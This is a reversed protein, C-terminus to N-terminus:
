LNKAYYRVAKDFAPFDQEGLTKFGFATHFRHSGPNDPRTNVECALYKHGLNRAFAEIDNYLRQGLGRGQGDADIIIRDIYFFDEIKTRLWDLNKHEDWVTDHAYGILIATAEDIQRAYSAKSLLHELDEQDLPSLWHVFRENLELIKSHHESHIPAIM